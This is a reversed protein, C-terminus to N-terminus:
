LHRKGIEVPKSNSDEIQREYRARKEPKMWLLDKVNYSSVALSATGACDM